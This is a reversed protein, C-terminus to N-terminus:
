LDDDSSQVLDKNKSLSEFLSKLDEFSGGDKPMNKFLENLLEPDFDDNDDNEVHQHHHHDEDVSHSFVTTASLFVASLVSLVFLLNM